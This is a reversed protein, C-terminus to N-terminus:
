LGKVDVPISSNVRTGDGLQGQDNEGWCKIGIGDMLACSHGGGGTTIAFAGAGLGTVDVPISSNTTTGDGLQGGGNLGWCKVGGGTMLVCTHFADEFPFASRSAAIATVGTALGSVDVPINSGTTTGNGLQGYANRGWCSVGGARLAMSGSSATSSLLACTHYDSAAIAFADGPLGAVDVPISSDTNSGDGLEGSYNDGFCKVGGVNTLACTHRGGGTIAIVGSDLGAVDVPTHVNKTKGNGLEGVDNWGWCKVGGGVTLACTWGGGSAIATVGSTLGSVDVPISSDTTTGNGLQGGDNRGWCKVGTEGGLFTLACAHEFGPAISIVGSTLGSVDVPTISDTTTGNGLQGRSNTGWCRVGGGVTVACTFRYGAAVATAYGTATLATPSATPPTEPPAAVRPWSVLVIGLVAVVAIAAVGVALRIPINM